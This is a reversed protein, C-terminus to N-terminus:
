GTSARRWRRRTSSRWRAWAASARASSSGWRRRSTATRSTRVSPLGSEKMAMETAAMAYQAYLDMRRVERKDIWEEPVFDKVEAAIRADIGSADFPHHAWGPSAPWCPRGTRRWAPEWRPSSDPEQSSSAATRCPRHGIGPGRTASSRTPTSTTSPTGSPRSTRPRRTPIEVEFEEEMAMVLEVIDLSDAGLDEIFSSEPKIEDEGVGLQDAIISKVKAEIASTAM